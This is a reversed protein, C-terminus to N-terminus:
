KHLDGEARLYDKTTENVPSLAGVLNSVLKMNRYAYASVKNAKAATSQM